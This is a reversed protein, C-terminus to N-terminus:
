SNFIPAEVTVSVIQGDVSFGPGELHAQFDYRGPYPLDTSNTTTYSLITGTLTATWKGIGGGNSYWIEKVTALALLAPDDKTDLSIKAGIQGVFFGSDAIPM